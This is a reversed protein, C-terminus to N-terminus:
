KPVTVGPEPEEIIEEQVQKLRASVARNVYQSMTMFATAVVGVLVAYELVSQGRNRRRIM